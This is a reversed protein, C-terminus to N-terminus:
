FSLDVTFGIHKNISSAAQRLERATSRKSERSIIFKDRNAQRSGVQLVLGAVVRKMLRKTPVAISKNDPRAEQYISQPICSSEM